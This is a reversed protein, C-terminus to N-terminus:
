LSLHRDVDRDRGRRVHDWATQVRELQQQALEATIAYTTARATSFSAAALARALAAPVFVVTRHAGPRFVQFQGYTRTSRSRTAARLTRLARAVGGDKM